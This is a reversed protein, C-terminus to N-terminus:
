NNICPHEFREERHENMEKIAKTFHESSKKGKLLLKFMMPPYRKGGFYVNTWYKTEVRTVIGKENITIDSALFSYTYKRLYEIDKGLLFDKGVTQRELRM